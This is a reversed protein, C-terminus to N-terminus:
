RVGGGRPKKGGRGFKGAYKLNNSKVLVTAPARTFKKLLLSEVFGLKRGAFEPCDDTPYVCSLAQDLPQVLRDFYYDLDLRHGRGFRSVAVINDATSAGGNVVRVYSVRDGEQDFTGETKMRDVLQGVAPARRVALRREECDEEPMDSCAKYDALDRFKQTIALEEPRPDRRVAELRGEIWDVIEALQARDFIMGVVHEFMSRMLPFTDRRVSCVGRKGLKAQLTGDPLYTRYVYKKKMMILFMYVSKEFELRMPRPFMDSVEAAVREAYEYLNDTVPFTVYNSDTDGYVVEASYDRQLIEAVRKINIRGTYTISMAVPTLTMMGGAGVGTIGYISNATVKYALQRKDMVRYANSTPDLGKMRQRVETRLRIFEEVISPLVARCTERKLFRFRRQACIPKKKRGEPDHECGDHDHWEVVNCASDPVSEDVVFSYPCANLVIMTSPYLSAFDFPIVRDYLGPVPEFVYAGVYRQGNCPHQPRVFVISNDYCYQYVRSFIRKQQGNVLLTYVDTRCAEALASHSTWVDLTDFLRAVLAGDQVCYAGCMSLAEDAMEDGTIHMKYACFLDEVGVDSKSEGLFERAVTDLKFDDLKYTKSVVPLLDVFLRGDADVFEYSQRNYASSTWSIQRVACTKGAVFGMAAFRVSCDRVAARAIMYPIDFTFINYGMCVNVRREILLRTFGCLLAREDECHVVAVDCGPDVSGSGVTLLVRDVVRPRDMRFFVMCIQFVADNPMSADPFMGRDSYCEIDFSCCTLPATRYEDAVATLMGESYEACGHTIQRKVPVANSLRAWGCTPYGTSAFFKTLPLVDDEYVEFQHYEGLVYKPGSQFFKALNKVAQNSNVYIKLMWRSAPTGDRVDGGYVLSRRTFALRHYPQPVLRHLRDRLGHVPLGDDGVLQPVSVYFYPKFDFTVCVPAGSEDVAYCTVTDNRYDWNYKWYYVYVLM